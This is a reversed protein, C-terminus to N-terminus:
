SLFDLTFQVQELRQNLSGEVLIFPISRADLTNVLDDHIQQRVEPSERQLGDAIWPFDPATVLTLAYDHELELRQLEPDLRKFYYRSYLATMLPTTDCFLWLKALALSSQEQVLQTQAIFLQDQEQPVRGNKEVFERLYEPVWVTKYHNALAEALQSKGSSEAGLIAIKQVSSAASNQPASSPEAKLMMIERM